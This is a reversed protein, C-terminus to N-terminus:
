AAAGSLRTGLRPDVNKAGYIMDWRHIHKGTAIDSGRWYRISIGTDPDTAFSSTDSFPTELRASVLQIAQKHFAAKVPYATTAAGAFTVAANDAPAASVTQFAGSTVIHPFISVTANGVGDATADATVVFQQLFPRTEKSRANVAYVGAITFIEGAKITVGAGLTDLVLTSSDADKVSEYTVNQGAGNVLGGSSPRTGTTLSKINQTAFADIESMLPIKVKELATRNVGTIPTGTLTGRILEGDEFSLVANLDTNPVSQEMLRTHAKMFQAPTKVSEGLTGVHSYFGLLKSHLYLDVDHALTSAASKMTESKMLANWSQVAELDGVSIHVNRYRDVELSTSGAVIDQEQLAAGDNVIFQPPRKVFIKLGNQDTVKNKFRGDVLKGMVLQNKLLLLMVNAYEKANLFQNAM